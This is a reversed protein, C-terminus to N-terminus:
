WMAVVDSKAASSVLSGEHVCSHLTIDRSNGCSCVESGKFGFSCRAGVRTQAVAVSGIAEAVLHACGLLRSGCPLLLEDVQRQWWSFVVCCKEKTGRHWKPFGGLRRQLRTLM